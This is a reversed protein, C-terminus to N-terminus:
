MLMSDNKGKGEDLQEQGAQLRECFAKIFEMFGGIRKKAEAAMISEITSQLVWPASSATCTVAAAIHSGKSGPLPTVKFM